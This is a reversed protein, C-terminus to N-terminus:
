LNLDFKNFKDLIKDIYHIQSLVLEDSTRTIKISLIVDALGTDKMNFNSNSM